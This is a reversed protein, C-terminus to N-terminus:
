GVCAIQAPLSVCLFHVDGAMERHIGKVAACAVQSPLMFAFVEVLICSLKLTRSYWLMVVPQLSLMHSPAM